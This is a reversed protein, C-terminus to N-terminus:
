LPEYASAVLLQDTKDYKAQSKLLIALNNMVLLTRPHEKGLVKEM